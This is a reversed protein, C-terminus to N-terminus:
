CTTGFSVLTSTFIRSAVNHTIKYSPTDQWWDSVHFVLLVQKLLLQWSDQRVKELETLDTAFDTLERKFFKTNMVVKRRWKRRGEAEEGDVAEEKVATNKGGSIAAGGDQWFLVSDNVVEGESAFRVGEKSVEILVNGGLQSLDRVIRTFESFAMTVPPECETEPIGLPDSDIDLLKM